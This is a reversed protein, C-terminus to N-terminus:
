FMIELYSGGFLRCLMSDARDDGAFLYEQLVADVGKTEIANQFFVLFNSYEIGKGLYQQFKTSDGM